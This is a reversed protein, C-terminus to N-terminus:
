RARSRSRGVVRNLYEVRINWPRVGAGKKFLYKDPYRYDTFLIEGTVRSWAEYKCVGCRECRQALRAVTGSAKFSRRIGGDDPIPDWRHRRARCEVHADELAHLAKEDFMKEEPTTM